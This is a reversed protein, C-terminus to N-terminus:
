YIQLETIIHNLYIHEALNKFYPIQPGNNWHSETFYFM